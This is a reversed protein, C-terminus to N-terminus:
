GAKIVNLVECGQCVGALGEVLVCLCVRDVSFALLRRTSTCCQHAGVCLPLRSDVQKM